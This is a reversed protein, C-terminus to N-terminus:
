QEVGDPWHDRLLQRAWPPDIRAQRRIVNGVLRQNAPDALAREAVYAVLRHLASQRACPLLAAGAERYVATFAEDYWPLPPTSDGDPYCPEPCACADAPPAWGLAVLAAATEADVRAQVDTEAQVVPLVIRLSMESVEGATGTLAYAQVCDGIDVGDLLVAGSGHDIEIRATRPTM